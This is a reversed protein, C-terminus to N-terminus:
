GKATAGSGKAPEGGVAGSVSVWHGGTVRLASNRALHGTQGFGHVADNSFVASSRHVVHYVAENITGPSFDLVSNEINVSAGVLQVCAASASHGCELKDAVFNIPGRPHNRHKGIDHVLIPDGATQKGTACHAVTIDHTYSGTGAGGNAFFLAGGTATCGDITVNTAGEDWQDAELDFADFAPNEVILNSIQAGAVSALTVGQRGAGTITVGAITIDTAPSLIQSSLHDGGGRLPSLSIGDGYPDTITVGKIAADKTGEVDIAGAFALPAHYGGPNKGTIKMNELTVNSGGQVTFAATGSPKAKPDSPPVIDDTFTGGYITLGQPNRLTVGKTVQYCAQAGVRVISNAPLNNFFRKLSGSVDTSCDAPISAPVAVTRGTPAPVTSAGGTVTGVPGVTTDDPVNPPAPPLTPPPAPTAAHEAATTPVTQEAATTPVTQEAATTPRSSSRTSPGSSCSAAVLAVVGVLTVLALTRRGRGVPMAISALGLPNRLLRAM